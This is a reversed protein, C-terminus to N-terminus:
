NVLALIRERLDEPIERDINMIPACIMQRWILQSSFSGKQDLVKFIVPMKNGNEDLAVFYLVDGVDLKDEWRVYVQIPLIDYFYLGTAQVQEQTGQGARLRILPMEGPPFNFIAQISSVSITESDANGWVDKIKTLRTCDTQRGRVFITYDSLKRIARATFNNIKNYANGAM